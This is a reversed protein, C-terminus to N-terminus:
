EEYLSAVEECLWVPAILQDSKITEVDVDRGFTQLAEALEIAVEVPDFTNINTLFALAKEAADALKWAAEQLSGPNDAHNTM